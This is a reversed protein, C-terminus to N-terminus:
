YCNSYLRGPVSDAVVNLIRAIQTENLEQKWRFLSSTPKRIVQFYRTNASKSHRVRYIFRETQTSWDMGSFRFLKQTVERPHQCLEEYLVIKYNPNDQMENLVKENHLMWRCALREEFSMSKLRELTLGRQAAEQMRSLAEEYVAESSMKGLQIGRLLSAVYGCPHRIIHLIKLRQEARSFLYTRCLSNVSKIVYIHGARHKRPCLDPVALSRIPEIHGVIQELSKLLYMSARFALERPANRYNKRFMPRSGSSKVTRTHRLLNLYSAALPINPDVDDRNVVFPIDTNVLVSDPEHCYVIDPHSDFLKGLWTTGSRPSGVVFITNDASSCLTNEM